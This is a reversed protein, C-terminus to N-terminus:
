GYAELARRSFYQVDGDANDMCAELADRVKANDQFVKVLEYATQCAITVVNPVDDGLAMLLIDAFSDGIQDATLVNDSYAERFFYVAVLRHHYNTSVNTRYPNTM